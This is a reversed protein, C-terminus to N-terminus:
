KMKEFAINRARPISIYLTTKGENFYLNGGFDAISFGNAYAPLLAYELNPKLHLFLKGEKLYVRIGSVTETSYYKGTYQLLYDNGLVPATAKSYVMTDRGPFIYLLEKGQKFVLLQTSNAMKFKNESQPVLYTNDIFVSDKRISVLAAMGDRNNRYWGSYAPSLPKTDAVHTETKQMASGSTKGFFIDRITNALRTKATDFQSTNTLFAISLKKDPFFELSARYGATAGTHQIYKQGRFKQIFLGAGYDNMEGNNFATLQTQTTFLSSTGLKGSTYFDTWKLLDETTTLLGGNGYADENPMLTEYGNKTLRYAIARNKVIRNHNDRWETNTMGAPIFISQRTFEALSQKSVRQVLIAMLNYNSNSYIFEAGPINNLTKQAIIIDLADDNTYAKTTREWGAVAAVSGWDKLGSTHHMLQEITIPTGYDPLEPIYKRVDDQLSLKGQQALLLIAAATFQKSVSGAETKSDLTVVVNHELDAMGYAKSFIIEGNQKVSLQCGPNQPLYMGLAKELLAVTDKRTQSFGNLSLLLLSSLLIKNKMANNQIIHRYGNAVPLSVGM